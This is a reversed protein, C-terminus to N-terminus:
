TNEFRQKLKQPRKLSIANQAAAGLIKVSAGEKKAQKAKAMSELNCNGGCCCSSTEEKKSKRGFLSM